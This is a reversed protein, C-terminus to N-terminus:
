PLAKRQLASNVAEELRALAIPKELIALVLGETRAIHEEPTAFSVLAIVDVHPFEARLRRLIMLEELALQEVDIVVVSVPIRRLRSEGEQWGLASTVLSGGAMLARSLGQSTTTDPSVVLISEPQRM